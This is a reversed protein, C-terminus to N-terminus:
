THRRASFLVTRAGPGTRPLPGARHHRCPYRRVPHPPVGFTRSPPPYVDHAIRESGIFRMLRDWYDKSYEASLRDAWDDPLPADERDEPVEVGILERQGPVSSIGYVPGDSSVVLGGGDLVVDPRQPDRYGVIWLGQLPNPLASDSHAVCSSGEQQLHANAREIAEARSIMRRRRGIAAMAEAEAPGELDALLMYAEDVWDDGSGGTM